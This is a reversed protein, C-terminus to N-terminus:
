TSLSSAFGPFNSAFQPVALLRKQILAGATKGGASYAKLRKALQTALLVSPCSAAAEKLQERERREHEDDHSIDMGFTSRSEVGKVDIVARESRFSALLAYGVLLATVNALNTQEASQAREINPLVNSPLYSNVFYPVLPTSRSTQALWFLATALQRSARTSDNSKACSLLTSHVAELQNHPPYFSAGEVHIGKLLASASYFDYRFNLLHVFKRPSQESIGLAGYVVAKVDDFSALELAERLSKSEHMRLISRGCIRLVVQPCSVDMVIAQIVRLYLGARYGKRLAEDALGRVVGVLSWSFLPELFYAVAGSILVQLETNKNSLAESFLSAAMHLLNKPHTSAENEDRVRRLLKDPIGETQGAFVNTHWTKMLNREDDSFSRPHHVTSAATLCETSLRRGNRSVVYDPLGFQYVCVQLFLIISGLQTWAMQPEGTSSVDFDDVLGLGDAVLESMCVHLSLVDLVDPNESLIRSLISLRELGDLSIALQGFVKQVSAAVAAQSGFDELMLLLFSQMEDQSGNVFLYDCYDQVTAGAEQALAVIKGTELIIGESSFPHPAIEMADLSTDSADNPTALQPYLSKAFDASVLARRILAGLFNRRFPSARQEESGDKNLSEEGITVDMSQIDGLLTGKGKKPPDCADLLPSHTTFIVALAYEAASRFQPQNAKASSSSASAFEQFTAVLEPLRGFVFAQRLIIQSEAAPTTGAPDTSAVAEAVMAIASLFLKEFFVQARAQNPRRTSGGASDRLGSATPTRAHRGFQGGPTRPLNNSPTRGSPTQAVALPTHAQLATMSAAAAANNAQPHNPTRGIVNTGHNQPAPTRTHGAANPTMGPTVGPTNHDTQGTTTRSHGAMSISPSISPAIGGAPANHSGGEKNLSGADQARTPHPVVTSKYTGLMLAVAHSTSSSGLGRKGRQELLNRLLFGTAVLDEEPPVFDIATEKSDGQGAADAMDVDGEAKLMDDWGGTLDMAGSSLTFSMMWGDLADKANGSPYFEVLEAVSGILSSSAAAPLRPVTPTSVASLLLLLLTTLNQTVQEIATQSSQIFSSGPNLLAQFTFSLKLLKIVNEILEANRAAPKGSGVAFLLAPAPSGTSAASQQPQLVLDLVTTWLSTQAQFQPSNLIVNPFISIYAPLSLVGDQIAQELYERPANSSPFSVMVSM